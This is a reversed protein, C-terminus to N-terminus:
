GYGMGAKRLIDRIETLLQKIEKLRKLMLEEVEEDSLELYKLGREGSM